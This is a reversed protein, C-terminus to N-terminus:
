DLVRAFCIVEKIKRDRRMVQGGNSNDSLSTNGEIATFTSGKKKWGEFLGVHDSVGDGQWDFLVIDGPKVEAASVMKLGNRNNRADAVMFPCYAWRAKKPDFHKNGAKTYCWTVFMACWPGVLGYWDSYLVRNSNPPNEKTGIEGIAVELAVKRFDKDAAEHAKLRQDRRLRNTLPLKKQGSLYQTLPDGAIPTIDNKGYGLWYKAEKCANATYPGFVGDIKQTYFSGYPNKKLLNQVEKVEPGKTYPSTLTITKM